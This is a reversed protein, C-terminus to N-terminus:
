IISGKDFWALRLTLCLWAGNIHRARFCYVGDVRRGGTPCAAPLLDHGIEILHNVFTGIM